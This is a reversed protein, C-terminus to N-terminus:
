IDSGDEVEGDVVIENSKLIYRSYYSFTVTTLPLAILMGFLGLLSGWISLSLILIAPNMGYVKGMIKPTLYLDQIAQVVVTVILLLLAEHWFSTGHEMSKLLAFFIAPIYGIVQLYPVMNLVGILLGLIIAMPLGIISFGIAFLVGTISAILGQARFYINMANKLDDFLNVIIPRYSHPILTKWSSAINNYDILIFVLYVIVVFFSVVSMIVALTGSLFSWSKEASDRLISIAKEVSILSKFDVTELHTQIKALYEQSIYDQYNVTQAYKMLLSGMKQIEASFVPILYCIIGILSGFVLILSLMVAAVRNKVRLKTQILNVLPDILYALILAVVFPLLVGSLIKLLFFIGAFILVTLFIRFIKDLTYPQKSIM